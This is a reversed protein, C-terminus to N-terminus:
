ERKSKTPSDDANGFVRKQELILSWENMVKLANVATLYQTILVALQRHGEGDPRGSFLDAIISRCKFGWLVLVFHVLYDLGHMPIL